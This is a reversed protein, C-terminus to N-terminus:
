KNASILKLLEQSLAHADATKFFTLNFNQIAMAASKGLQEGALTCSLVYARTDNQNSERNVLYHAALIRTVQSAVNFDLGAADAANKQSPLHNLEFQLRYIANLMLYQSLTLGLPKLIESAGMRWQHASNILLKDLEQPYQFMQISKVSVHSYTNM